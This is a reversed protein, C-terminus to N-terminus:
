PASRGHLRLGRAVCQDMPASLDVERIRRMGPASKRTRLPEALKGRRESAGLEGNCLDWRWMGRGPRNEVSICAARRAVRRYDDTALTHSMQVMINTDRGM